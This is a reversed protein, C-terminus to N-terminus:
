DFSTLDWKREFITFSQHTLVIQGFIHLLQKDFYIEGFYIMSM